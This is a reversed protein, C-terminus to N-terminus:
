ILHGKNSSVNIDDTKMKKSDPALIPSNERKKTKTVSSQTLEIVKREVELDAGDLKLIGNKDITVTLKLSM